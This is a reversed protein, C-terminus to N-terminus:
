ATLKKLLLVSNKKNQSTKTNELKKIIVIQQSKKERELSINTKTSLKKNTNKYVWKKRVCPGLIKCVELGM